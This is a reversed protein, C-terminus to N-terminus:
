HPLRPLSVSPAFGDGLVLAVEGVVFFLGTEVTDREFEGAEDVFFELAFPVDEFVEREAPAVPVEGALAPNEVCPDVGMRLGRVSDEETGDALVLDRDETM